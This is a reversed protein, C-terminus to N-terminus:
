VRTYNIIVSAESVVFIAKWYKKDQVSLLFPLQWYKQRQKKNLCSM